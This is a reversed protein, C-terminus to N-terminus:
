VSCHQNPFPSVNTPNKTFSPEKTESKNEDKKSYDPDNNGDAEHLPFVSTDTSNLVERLFTPDVTDIREYSLNPLTYVYRSDFVGGCFGQYSMAPGGTIPTVGGTNAPFRLIEEVCEPKLYSGLQCCESKNTNLSSSM